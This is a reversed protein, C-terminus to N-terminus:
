LHITLICNTIKGSMVPIYNLNIDKRDNGLYVPKIEPMNSLIYNHIDIFNNWLMDWNCYGDVSDATKIVLM